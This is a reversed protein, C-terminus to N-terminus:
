GLLQAKYDRALQHGSREYDARAEPSMSELVAERVTPSTDELILSLILRGQEPTLTARVKAGYAKYEDETIVTALLPLAEREEHGLHKLLDKELAILETHLAARNTASPDNRWAHSLEDVRKLSDNLGDHEHQMVFVAEHEPAREQAIPWLLEDECDHHVTMFTTMLEIHDAVTAARDSDGDPISKVLLPLSGFEKRMGDHAAIMDSVDISSDTEDEVTPM